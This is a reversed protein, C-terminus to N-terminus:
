HCSALSGDSSGGLANNRSIQRTLVQFAPRMRVTRKRGSAKQNSVLKFAVAKFVAGAFCALPGHV